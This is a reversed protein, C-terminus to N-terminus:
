SNKLIYYDPTGLIQGKKCCDTIFKSRVFKVKPAEKVALDLNRDWERYADVCVVYNVNPGMVKKLYGGSSLICKKVVCKEDDNYNGYLFFNLGSFHTQLEPLGNTKADSCSGHAISPTLKDLKPPRLTDNHHVEEEDVDTDANYADDSDEKNGNTKHYSNIQKEEDEDDTEQDYASNRDKEVNEIQCAITGDDLEPSFNKGSNKTEKLVEEIEDDTNKDYLNDDISLNHHDDLKCFSGKDLKSKYIKEDWIEDESEDARTGSDTPDLCFRRWPYRIKNKYSTEIWDCKVIKAEASQKRVQNFKPTNIFACVLHTCTNDWDANYKAGMDLAKQRLDSRRPNQYGSIVFKVGEMLRSFPKTVAKRELSTNMKGPLNPPPPTISQEGPLIDRRPLKSEKNLALSLDSFPKTVEKRERSPDIKRKKNSEKKKDETKLVLSIDPSPLKDLHKRKQKNAQCAIEALTAESRLSADISIHKTETAATTNRKAAFLSGIPAKYGFATEEPEDKLVFAGLKTVKAEKASNM